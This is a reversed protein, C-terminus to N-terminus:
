AAERTEIPSAEILHCAITRGENVPRLAPVESRCRARALPCRPHFACGRPRQSPDPPEGTLVIREAKAGPSPAASVLARTYPHLPRAFLDDADGEEVLRGLYM